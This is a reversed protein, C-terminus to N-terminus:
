NQNIQHFRTEAVNRCKNKFRLYRIYKRTAKRAMRSALADRLFGFPIFGVWLPLSSIEYFLIEDISLDDKQVQEQIAKPLEM